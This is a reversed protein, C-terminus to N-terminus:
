FLWNDWHGSKIYLEKKTIHPIEVKDYGKKKRISWVFDYLLDRILTGKPTWLPLGAGVLDSFVFLDLAKGLKKHDRKIAEERTTLFKDLEKQSPFATGYVRTLMENKENGRWYAGATSLLKFAKIEGTSKVHPGKCLDSFEDGTSYISVKKDEIGELIEQKFPNDKFLEKAESKSIVKKTIPLDKKIIEKMKKEIKPFDKENVEVEWRSDNYWGNEIPPGLARTIKGPWLEEIAQNFVHECSHRIKYLNDQKM